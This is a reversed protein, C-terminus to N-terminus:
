VALVAVISSAAAVTSGTMMAASVMRTTPREPVATTTLTPLAPGGCRRGGPQAGVIVAAHERGVVRHRGILDLELSRIGVQAM